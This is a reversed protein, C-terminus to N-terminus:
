VEEQGLGQGGGVEEGFVWAQCQGPIEPPFSERASKAARTGSLSGSWETPMQSTLPSNPGSTLWPEKARLAAIHKRAMIAYKQGPGPDDSTMRIRQAANHPKVETSSPPDFKVTADDLLGAYVTYELSLSSRAKNRM